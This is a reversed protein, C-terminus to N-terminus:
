RCSDRSCGSYMRSVGFKWPINKVLLMATLEIRSSPEYKLMVSIIKAPVTGDVRPM